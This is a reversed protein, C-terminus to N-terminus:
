RKAAEWLYAYTKHSKLRRLKKELAASTIAYNYPMESLVVKLFRLVKGRVKGAADDVWAKPADGVVDKYLECLFGLLHDDYVNEPKTKGRGKVIVEERMLVSSYFSEIKELSEIAMSFDGNLAVPDHGMLGASLAPNPEATEYLLKKVLNSQKSAETVVAVPGRLSYLVELADLIKGRQEEILKRMKAPAVWDNFREPDSFLMKISNLRLRIEEEVTTVSGDSRIHQDSPKVGLAKIARDLLSQSFEQNNHIYTKRRAAM